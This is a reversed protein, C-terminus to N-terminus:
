WHCSQTAVPGVVDATADVGALLVLTATDTAMEVAVAVTVLVGSVTTDVLRTVVVSAVVGNVGAQHRPLSHGLGGSQTVTSM